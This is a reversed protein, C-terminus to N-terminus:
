RKACGGGSGARGLACPPPHEVRRGRQEWEDVGGAGGASSPKRSSKADAGQLEAWLADVGSPKAEAAIPATPKAGVAGGSSRSAAGRSSTAAASEANMSAWLDDVNSKAEATCAKM